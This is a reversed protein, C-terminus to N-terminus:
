KEIYEIKEVMYEYENILFVDEPKTDKLKKAIECEPSIKMCGKENLEANEIEDIYLYMTEDNYSTYVKYIKIVDKKNEIETEKNNYKTIEEDVKKVNTKMIKPIEYKENNEVNGLFYDEIFQWREKDSKLNEFFYKMYNVSTFHLNSINKLTESHYNPNSIVRKIIDESNVRIFFEPRNGAEFTYSTLDFLEMIQVAIVLPDSRMTDSKSNVISVRKEENEFNVIYNRIAEQIEIIKRDYYSSKVHYKGTKSNYDCFKERINKVGSYSIILNILPEMINKALNKSIQKDNEIYIQTIEDITFHRGSMKMKSFTNKLYNMKINFINVSTNLKNGHKAELSLLMRDYMFSRDKDKLDNEFFKRKFNGFTIGDYKGNYQSEWCKKFDFEYVNGLYMTTMQDYSIKKLNEADYKVELFKDWGYEKIKSLKSNPIYFLGKTYMSRPKFILPVYNSMSKFDRKIAIITAKLSSEINDISDDSETSFIHAFDETSMLFNRRNLKQYKELIKKLVGIVHYNTIQSLGYLKNIYRFDEEFYDTKAIGIENKNRAARGIEQVYDSLNGTPAFHYVNLIGKVDIGMGFAKTALIVKRTGDKIDELALDKESKDMGAYYSSVKTNPLENYVAKLTKVFPFYVLTKEDLDVYDKIQKIVIADKEEKYAHDKKHVNIEFKINDRKVNGIFPECTMNLSEIIDHYMDNGDKSITSTATFTAIPFIRNLRHRLKNIYEGLYWYDPRFNKGWTSVTHAEDVVLLGIKRDGILAKIDYNGLLTEPSIYLISCVGEKIKEKIVEKEYPTYESNITVATKTIKKLNSVQDKMLGILPSIVITVLGLKEAALVAPIQFLLSKGAGTPATVFIDRFDSGIEQAKLINEYIYDIIVSQNIEIKENSTFPDKYIPFTRFDYTEDIRKLIELYEDYREPKDFKKKEKIININIGLRNLFYLYKQMISVNNENEVVIVNVTNYGEFVIKSFVEVYKQTNITEVLDISKKEKFHFVDYDNSYKKFLYMTHYRNEFEISNYAIIPYQNIKDFETYINQLINDTPSDEDFKMLVKDINNAIFGPYYYDFIGIDVIEVKYKSNEILGILNNKEIFILEEMLCYYVKQKQLKNVIDFIIGQIDVNFINEIDEELKLDIIHDIDINLNKIISNFGKLVYITEINVMRRNIEENIRELM